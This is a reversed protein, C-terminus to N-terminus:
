VVERRLLWNWVDRRYCRGPCDAVRDGDLGMGEHRDVIREKSSHIAILGWGTYYLIAVTLFYIADILM